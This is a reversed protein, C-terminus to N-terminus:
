VTYHISCANGQERMRQTRRVRQCVCVHERGHPCVRYFVHTHPQYQWGNTM